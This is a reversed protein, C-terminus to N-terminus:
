KKPSTSKAELSQFWDKTLSELVAAESGGQIVTTLADKGPMGRKVHGIFRSFGDEGLKDLLFATLSASEIYFAQILQLNAPYAPLEVLDRVTIPLDAVTKCNELMWADAVERRKEQMCQAIGENLWTPCRREGFFEALVLHTLEHPLLEPSSLDPNFTGNPMLHLLDIRLERRGSLFADLSTYGAATGGQSWEPNGAAVYERSSPYVTIPVKHPYASGKLWRMTLAGLYAEAKMSVYHTLKENKSRVTFHDSERVSWDKGVATMALIDGQTLEGGGASPPKKGTIAAIRTNALAIEEPTEALIRFELWAAAAEEKKELIELTEALLRYAEVTEPSDEIQDRLHKEAEAHKLSKMAAKAKELSTEACAPVALIWVVAVATM